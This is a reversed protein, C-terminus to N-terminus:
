HQASPRRLVFRDLLGFLLFCVLLTVVLPASQRGPELALLARALAAPQAFLAPVATLTGLWVLAGLWALAALAVGALEVASWSARREELLREVMHSAFGAPPEFSRIHLIGGGISRYDAALRACAPCQDLHARLSPAAAGDDVFRQIDTDSPHSQM